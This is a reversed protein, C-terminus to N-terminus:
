DFKLMRKYSQGINKKKFGSMDSLEENIVKETKCFGSMDSLEENIVKETKCFGSIDSLEENIM